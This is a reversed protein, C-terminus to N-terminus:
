QRERDGGSIEPLLKILDLVPNPQSLPAAANSRGVGTKPGTGAPVFTSNM